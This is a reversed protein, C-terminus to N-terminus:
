RSVEAQRRALEQIEETSRQAVINELKLRYLRRDRTFSVEQPQLNTMM